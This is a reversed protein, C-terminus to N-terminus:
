QPKRILKVKAPLDVKAMNEEATVIPLDLLLGLSMCARDAFSLGFPKSEPWIAAAKVAHAVDFPIVRLSQKGLLLQVKSISGGFEVAKKLVEGYNVASITAGSLLPSAKEHGREHNLVALVASADFV